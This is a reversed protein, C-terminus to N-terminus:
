AVGGYSPSELEAPSNARCSKEEGDRDPKRTVANTEAVNCDAAIAYPVGVDLIEGCM